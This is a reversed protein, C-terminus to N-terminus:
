GSARRCRRRASRRGPFPLALSGGLRPARRSPPLRARGALRRDCRRSRSVAPERNIASNASLGRSWRRSAPRRGSPAYRGLRTRCNARPWCEGSPRGRSWPWRRSSRWYSCCSWCRLRGALRHPPVHCALPSPLRNRVCAPGETPNVTYGTSGFPNSQPRGAQFEGQPERPPGGEPKGRPEPEMGTEGEGDGTGGGWSCIDDDTGEEGDPGYSWIDPMDQTGHTPPYEYQYANGWPDVGITGSVYPGNWTVNEPLDAPQTRWRRWDRNPRPSTTATWPLLAGLGGPVHRNPDQRHRDQGEEAFGPIAARGHGAAPGPDGARDANGGAHFRRPPDHRKCDM